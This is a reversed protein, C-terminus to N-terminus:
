PPPLRGDFTGNGDADIFLANTFGFARAGPAVPALDGAGAVRAVIWSDVDAPTEIDITEDFRVVTSGDGPTHTAVVEGNVVVELQGVPVWSPAQVRVRLPLSGNSLSGRSVVDGPKHSGSEIEVFIGGSVALRGARLAEMYEGMDLEEPEDTGAFVYNRPYGVMDSRATHSDSNGTALRRMGRDLFAFWDDFHPSGGNAIEIADFDTTWHEPKRPTFTVPDFDTATFIGKHAAQRPHNLQILPGTSHARLMKMLEDGTKGYWPFAGNNAQTPDPQLPFANIHGFTITSVESGILSRAYKTLGMREITPQFSGIYDHETSIPVEVNEAVLSLVKHELLDDSDPSYQAHIHYDGSVWGTTDVVREMAADFTHTGNEEITITASVVEYEFGRSVHVIWEGPPIALVTAEPGLFEVREYGKHRPMLGLSDPLAAPPSTRVAQVKVPVPEGNETAVIELKGLAGVDLLLDNKGSEGVTIPTEEGADRGEATARVRYNGPVLDLRFDGNEDAITQTVYGGGSATLVHVTANGVGKGGARVSGTVPKVAPVEEGAKALLKRHADEHFALDGAGIVVFMEHVVPEGPEASFPGADTLKFGEIPLAPRVNSGPTFFTYSVQDAVGGIYTVPQGGRSALGDFGSGPAFMRLGDGLLYGIYHMSVYHVQEGANEITTTVRLHNADPELVYDITIDLNLEDSIEGVVAQLLPFVDDKAKVRVHAAKGDSGDNLVEASTGLMTRFNWTYFVEGFQSRGPEGPERVLDADVIKGGYIDYGNSPGPAEVIVAVKSNYLKFDGIAGAATPGGILDEAKAVVGARVQGPALRESLDLPEPEPNGPCAALGLWALVVFPLASTAPFNRLRTRM